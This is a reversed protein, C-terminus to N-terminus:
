KQYILCLKVSNGYSCTITCVNAASLLIYYPSDDPSSFLVHKMCSPELIYPFKYDGVTHCTFRMIVSEGIIIQMHNHKSYVLIINTIFNCLDM